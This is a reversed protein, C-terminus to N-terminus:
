FLDLMGSLRVGWHGNSAGDQEECHSAEGSDTLHVLVRQARVQDDKVVRQSVSFLVRNQFSTKAGDNIFQSQVNVFVNTQTNEFYM